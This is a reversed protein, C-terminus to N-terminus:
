SGPLGMEGGADPSISALLAVGGKAGTVALSHSRRERSANGSPRDLHQIEIRDLDVAARWAPNIALILDVKQEIMDRTLAATGLDNQLMAQAMVLVTDFDSKM